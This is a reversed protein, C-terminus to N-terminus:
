HKELEIAPIVGIIPLTTIQSLDKESKIRTDVIELFLFVLCSLLWGTIGGLLTNLMINPSVPRRPPVARDIVEVSGANIVRVIEAPAVDAIANAIELAHNPDKNIVAVRLVGTSEVATASIMKVLQSSSYGLDVKEAVQNMISNSKLLVIYTSILLESSELNDYTIRGGEYDKTNQVYLTINAEYLPVALDTSYFFAGVAFIVTTTVIAIWNKILVEAMKRLEIEM